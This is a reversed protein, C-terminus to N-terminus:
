GAHTPEDSDDHITVPSLARRVVQQILHQPPEKGTFLKFQLEAQRVFMDVGTLVKCGRTRAEKVLLTQEPRYVTDFVTLGPKLFSNHIPSDDMNPFMGVSTCNILTDCLVNHRAVWEVYRCDVEEALKQAKETTRNSIAVVAGQRRLGQAVARAAGGAGLILISRTAFNPPQGDPGAPLHTRLSEIAAPADTNYIKWGNGFRVLTNAAHITEVVDDKVGPLAAAAEKHPITVSYGQVPIADFARVFGALDGRPVRFPLYVANIGLEYFARNHVLPSLSHGVPDGILGFVATESNMRSVRYIKKLDDFSPLGPAISREKNFAAYTFPAGFKLALIRSPFGMEGMCFAITPKPSKKILELVRLNDAPQSATVAVKIVDADQRCMQAFIKDLDGPVEHLNHYSVLRKTDKYRPISDIIDTELDVWDFGAVIAQRLLMLREEETGPWRGGDDPRRVTAMLPCPRNALLRHFDPAKALFDLRLEILDAGRKAAERIEIQMMKHRTRGIVVCIKTAAITGM